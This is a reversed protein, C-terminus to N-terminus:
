RHWQGLFLVLLRMFRWLGGLIIVGVMIVLVFIIMVIGFGLLAELLRRIGGILDAIAKSVLLVVDIQELLRHLVIALIAGSIVMLMGLLLQRTAFAASFVRRRRFVQRNNIRVRHIARNM